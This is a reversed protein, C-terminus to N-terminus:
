TWMADLKVTRVTFSKEAGRELGSSVLRYKPTFKWVMSVLRNNEAYSELSSFVLRNKRRLEGSWQFSIWKKRRLKGPWQFSILIEAYIELGNFSISQKRRLKGSYQFSISKKQTVRWVV